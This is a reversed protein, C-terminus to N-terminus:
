PILLHFADGDVPPVQLRPLRHAREYPRLPRPECTVACLYGAAATMEVALPSVSGFPYAFLDVARGIVRELTTRCEFVEQFLETRSVAALDLHHVSHAGIEVGPLAALARLEDAVVPRAADHDDDSDRVTLQRVVDDRVAPGSRKLLSYLEDHTARREGGLPRSWADGAIRLAIRDASSRLVSAELVDWWFRRPRGLQESTIFLTAPVGFEALIPVAVELNDLYGDDFTLAVAGDLSVGQMAALALERLPVIRRDRVLRAIQRRFVDPPVCLAHVDSACTAVRHYLLIAPPREAAVGASARGGKVARVTVILPYGPDDLELEHEDVDDCSLGYLFATTALVNGHAAVQVDGPAFAAGFLRRAAAPLVRWFDGQPGYEEAVMSACPLTVLLVGGPKLVRHAQQVAAPMDDILHLTQTLIICDYSNDPIQVASRLDGVVTARYNGPDIDLVDAQEVRDDGYAHTLGSDLLELVRGRIDTRYTAIFREIYFRDVPRGRDLGWNRSLPTARRLDNWEPSRQGVDALEARLSTLEVDAVDLQRQLQRRREVLSRERAWLRRAVAERRTLVEVPEGEFIARHREIITRAAPLYRDARLSELLMVDDSSLRQVDLPLLMALVTATGAAAQATQSTRLRLMLDWDALAPLQEDFGGVRQVADLRYVTSTSLAWPGALLDVAQLPRASSVPAEPWWMGPATAFLVARDAELAQQCQDVHGPSLRESGDIVAIWEDACRAAAANRIAGPTMGGVPLFETRRESVGPLVEISARTAPSDHAIVLQSGPVSQSVAVALARTAQRIPGCALVLLSM